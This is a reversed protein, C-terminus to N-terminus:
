DPAVRLRASPSVLTQPPDSSRTRARPRGL